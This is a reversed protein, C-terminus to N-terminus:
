LAVVCWAFLALSGALLSLSLWRERTNDGFVAASHTTRAPQMM